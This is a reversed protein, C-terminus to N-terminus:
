RNAIELLVDAHCPRDLPCWCMLDHGALETKAAALLDAQEAENIWRRYEAVVVEAGHTGILFPNGWRTPRAVNVAGPPKRWGGTRRM